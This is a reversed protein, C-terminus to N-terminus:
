HSTTIDTLEDKIRLKRRKLDNIRSNDPNPSRTQSEIASELDAHKAKLSEIRDHLSM